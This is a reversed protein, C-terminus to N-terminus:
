GRRMMEDIYQSESPSWGFVFQFWTSYQLQSTSWFSLGIMIALSGSVINIIQWVSSPLVATRAPIKAEWVFFGVALFVSIIMPAIFSAAKWGDIPGQTLSLIFCILAGMMLVVGPIDLLRWKPVGAPTPSPPVWPLLLVACASFVLALIAVLRFFWHYSALMTLGALM